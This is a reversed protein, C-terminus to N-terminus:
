RMAHDSTFLKPRDLTARLATTPVAPSFPASVCNSRLYSPQVIGAPISSMEKPHPSLNQCQVLFKAFGKRKVKKSGGVVWVYSIKFYESNRRHYLVVSM